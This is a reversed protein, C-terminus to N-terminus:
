QKGDSIRGIQVQKSSNSAKQTQEVSNQVNSNGEIVTNGSVVIEQRQNANNKAEQTQRAKKKIGIKYGTLGGIIAGIVLSLIETGIGDFIWKLNDM